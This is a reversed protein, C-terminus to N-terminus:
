PMWGQDKVHIQVCSNKVRIWKGGCIYCNYAPDGIIDNPSPILNKGRFNTFNGASVIKKPTITESLECIDHGNECTLVTGQSIEM